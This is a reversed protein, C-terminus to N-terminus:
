PRTTWTKSGTSICGDRSWARRWTGSTRRRRAASAPPACSSSPSGLLQVPTVLGGPLLAVVRRYITAAAKGSLQQWVIAEVAAVFPDERHSRALGCPGHRRILGRLVPDRRALLRDARTYDGPQLRKGKLERTNPV